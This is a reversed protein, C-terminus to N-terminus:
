FSCVILVELSLKTVITLLGGEKVSLVPYVRWSPLQRGLLISYIVEEKVVTILTIEMGGIIYHCVGLVFVFCHSTSINVFSHADEFITTFCQGKCWWLCWLRTKINNRSTGRKREILLLQIIIEINGWCDCFRSMLNNNLYKM